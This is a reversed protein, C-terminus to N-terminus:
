DEIAKQIDEPRSQGNAACQAAASKIALEFMRDVNFDILYVNPKKNIKIEEGNLSVAKQINRTCLRFIAQDYEQPSNTDRMYLMCDWLPVSVGTLMRKVTICLSTKGEKELRNLEDNLVDSDKANVDLGFGGTERKTRSETLNIIERKNPDIIKNEILFEKLKRSTYIHPVVMICHKFLAGETAAKLGLLGHIEQGDGFISEMMSKIANEHLFKEHAKDMRFLEEMTISIGADKLEKRCAESIEMGFKIINPIGFYPSDSQEADSHDSAWNDRAELMDSFSVKSIIEKGEVLPAFEDSCLIYYPTGSCQLRVKAKIQKNILDTTEELEKFEKLAYSKDERETETKNIYDKVKNLGTAEGYKNSHSGYHTEDIIMLDIPLEPDYLFKHKDKIGKTRGSVDQLTAFVIITKGQNLYM